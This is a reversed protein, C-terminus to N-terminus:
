KAEADAMTAAEENNQPLLAAKRAAFAQLYPQLPASDWFLQRGGNQRIITGGDRLVAGDLQLGWTVRTITPDVLTGGPISTLDMPLLHDDVVMTHPIPAGASDLHGHEASILVRM